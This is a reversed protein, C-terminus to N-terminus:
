FSVVGLACPRYVALFSRSVLRTQYIDDTYSPLWMLNAWNNSPRCIKGNSMLELQDLQMVRGQGQQVGVDALIDMPGKPTMMKLSEFMLEPTSVSPVQGRDYIVKSNQTKAWNAWDIPNVYMRNPKVGISCMRAVLDTTSDEYAAGGGVVRWGSLGVLNATRNVGFFLTASPATVPNWGALGVFGAGYDGFMFFFDNQAISAIGASLNGTMTVTGGQYDVGAVTLTGAKTNNGGTGDDISSQIVQGAWFKVADGASVLTAVTTAFASNSLQGRAAGGNGYLQLSQSEYAADYAGDFAETLLKIMANEDGQTQDIAPGSLQVVAYDNYTNTVNFAKYQDPSGNALANPVTFARTSMPAYKIAVQFASGGMTENKPVDALFPRDEFFGTQVKKSEYRQKLIPGAATFDFVQSM